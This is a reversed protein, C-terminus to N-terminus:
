NVYSSVDKCRKFLVCKLQMIKEIHQQIQNVLIKNLIKANINMLSISRYNSIKTTYKDLKPILTISAEHLSNWLTGESEIEHFLKLLM